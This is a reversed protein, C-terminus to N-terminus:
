GVMVVCLLSIVIYNLTNASLIYNIENIGIANEKFVLFM